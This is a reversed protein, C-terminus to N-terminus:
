TMVPSVISATALYLSKRLNVIEVSSFTVLGGPRYRNRSAKPALAPEQSSKKPPSLERSVNRKKASDCPKPARGPLSM